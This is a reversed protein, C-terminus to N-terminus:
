LHGRKEKQEKYNVKKGKKKFFHMFFTFPMLFLDSWKQEIQSASIELFIM